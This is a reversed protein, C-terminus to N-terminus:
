TAKWVTTPRRHAQPNSSPAYGNMVILGNSRARNVVGGWARPDPPTPLGLDEARDRIDETMFAGTAGAIISVMMQYARESWSDKSM